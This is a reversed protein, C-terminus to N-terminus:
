TPVVMRTLRAIERRQDMARGGDRLLQYTIGADTM